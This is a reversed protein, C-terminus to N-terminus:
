LHWPFASRNSCFECVVGDHRSNIDCAEDEFSDSIKRSIQIDTAFALVTDTIFAKCRTEEERERKLFKSDDKLKDRFCM